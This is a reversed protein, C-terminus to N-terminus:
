GRALPARGGDLNYIAGTAWSADESLLFAAMAAADEPRGIRGMPHSDAIGKRVAENATIDKALPTDTLSLAVANVRVRPAYEAALQRTLAEVAGKAASVATHNQFGNQAAISSFLVVSGADNMREKSAKVANIAGIVNVEFAHRMDDSTLKRFPKLDITGVAYALGTLEGPGDAVAAEVAEADTVDAIAYTGGIESSLEKLPAESRGVLHLQHGDGALRRSLASGVGGAGGFITFASM